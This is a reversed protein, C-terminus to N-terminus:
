ILYARNFPFVDVMQASVTAGVPYRLKTRHWEAEIEPSAEDLRFKPYTPWLRVQGPTHDVVEFLLTEGPEPWEAVDRPLRLM